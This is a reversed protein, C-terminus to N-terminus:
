SFLRATSSLYIPGSTLVIMVRQMWQVRHTRNVVSTAPTDSNPRRPRPSSASIVVKPAADDIRTALEQPAFGGFVVSHIAGLRACALMAFIAQAVMPMYIVVRDGKTVGLGRLVAALASVQTLLEAYTYHTVSGTVPSDHIIALRGGHGAAVHRDVCNYCTNCTAGDFWRGYVGAEANFVQTAPRVWDIDAAAEQWFGVPDSQWAAYTANYGSM